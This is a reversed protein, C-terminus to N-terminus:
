NGYGYVKAWYFPQVEALLKSQWRMPDDPDPVAVEVRKGWHMLREQCVGCPTLIVIPADGSERAVCVSAVVRKDLKNAECVPGAEACLGTGGYEPQFNVGTLISGDECALAAAIGGQGDFRTLLLETAADVLRQTVAM